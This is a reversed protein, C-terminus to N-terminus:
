AAERMDAAEQEAIEGAREGAMREIHDALTALYREAITDLALTRVAGPQGPDMSIAFLDATPLRADILAQLADTSLQARVKTLARYMCEGGLWDAMTDADRLLEDRAEARAADLHRDTPEIRM